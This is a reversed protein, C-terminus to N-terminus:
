LVEHSFENQAVIDEISGGICSFFKVFDIYALVGDNEMTLDMDLRNNIILFFFNEMKGM